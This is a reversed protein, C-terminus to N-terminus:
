SVRSEPRPSRSPACRAGNTKAVEPESSQAATEAATKEAAVVYAHSVASGVLPLNALLMRAASSEVVRQMAQLGGPLIPIWGIRIREFGHRRFMEKLQRPSDFRLRGEDARAKGIVRKLLDPVCHANLADVQVRGGPRVVRALEAVAREPDSLAQLVGFCIAGDCSSPALPLRTVDAALWCVSGGGSRARAKLLSPVSYDLGIVRQGASAMARAYTGAGCGADLWLAGPENPQWSRLFAHFRARLGAESWGAIDADTEHERGFKEFRRRWTAEFDPGM